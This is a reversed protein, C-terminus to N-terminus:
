NPIMEKIINLSEEKEKKIVVDPLKWDNFVHEIRERKKQEQTLARSTNRVQDLEIELKSMMRDVDHITQMEQVAQSIAGTMEQLSSTCISITTIRELEQDLTRFKERLRIYDSRVNQALLQQIAECQAREVDNQELYALGSERYGRILNDQHIIKRHLDKIFDKTKQRVSLIDHQEEEEKKKKRFFWLPCWFSSEKDDDTVRTYEM